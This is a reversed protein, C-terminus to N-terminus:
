YGLAHRSPMVFITLIVHIVCIGRITVIANPNKDLAVVKVRTANARKAANLARQILPGHGAGFYLITIEPEEKIELEM